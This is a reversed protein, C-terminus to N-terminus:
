PHSPPVSEIVKREISWSAPTPARDASRISSSTRLALEELPTRGAHDPARVGDWELIRPDPLPEDSTLLFYTDIGYPETVDFASNELPIEPPAPKPPVRNEVSGSAPAPFLLVGRGHSDILFAYVYRPEAAQL